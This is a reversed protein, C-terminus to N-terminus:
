GFYKGVVDAPSLNDRHLKRLGRFDTDILRQLNKELEKVALELERKEREEMMRAMYEKRKKRYERYKKLYYKIKNLLNKMNRRLHIERIYIIVWFGWILMAQALMAISVVMSM